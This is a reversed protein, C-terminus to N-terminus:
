KHFTKNHKYLTYKKNKKKYKNMNKKVMKTVNNNMRHKM